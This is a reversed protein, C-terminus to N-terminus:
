EHIVAVKLTTNIDAGTMRIVYIGSAVPVGDYNRANWTFTNQVAPQGMLQTSLVLKGRLTFIRLDVPANTTPEYVLTMVEGANVNVYGRRGGIVHANGSIARLGVFSGQSNDVCDTFCMKSGPGPPPPNCGYCSCIGQFDYKFSWGPKEIEICRYPGPDNVDIPVHGNPDNVQFRGNTDATGSSILTNPPNGLYFRYSGVIPAGGKELLRVNITEAKASSIVLFTAIGALISSGNLKM